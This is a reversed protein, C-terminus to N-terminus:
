KNKYNATSTAFDQKWKWEDRMYQDFTQGDMEVEKESCSSLMDIARDYDNQHSVPRVLQNINHMATSVDRHRKKVAEFDSGNVPSNMVVAAATYLSSRESRFGVMAETYDSMHKDRNEKLRSLVTNTPFKLPKGNILM